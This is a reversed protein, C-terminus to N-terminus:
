VEIKGIKNMVLSGVIILIAAGILAIIGIIKTETMFFYSFYKKNLLYMAGIIIVPMLSLFRGSYM